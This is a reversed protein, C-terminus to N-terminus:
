ILAIVQPIHKLYNHVKNLFFFFPFFRNKVVFAKM